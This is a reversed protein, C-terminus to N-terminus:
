CVCLPMDVTIKKFEDNPVQGTYVGICFYAASQNKFHEELSSLDLYDNHIIEVLKPNNIKSKRRTISTVKEIQDSALCESLVISGVMGSAGVIIANKM